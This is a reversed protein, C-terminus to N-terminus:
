GAVFVSRSYEDFETQRFDIYYCSNTQDLTGVVECRLNEVVINDALLTNDRLSEKTWPERGKEFLYLSPPSSGLRTKMEEPTRFDLAQSEKSTTLAFALAVSLNPSHQNRVKVAIRFAHLGGEIWFDRAKWAPDINDIHLDEYRDYGHNKLNSLVWSEIVSAAPTNPATM